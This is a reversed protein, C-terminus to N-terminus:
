CMSSCLSTPQLLYTMLRLWMTLAIDMDNADDYFRTSDRATMQRAYAPGRQLVTLSSRWSPQTSCMRFHVPQCDTTVSSECQTCGVRVHRPSSVHDAATLKDNIVVWLATISHVQCINLCPSPFAASKGRTGRSTFVIEESKSCNLKKNNEEAWTRVNMLESTSTDSVSM